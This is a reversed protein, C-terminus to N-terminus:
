TTDHKKERRPPGLGPLPLDFSTTRRAKSGNKVVFGFPLPVPNPRAVAYPITWCALPAIAILDTTALPVVTWTSRGACTPTCGSAVRIRAADVGSVAGLLATTRTTSSSVATRLDTM